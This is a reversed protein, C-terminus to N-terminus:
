YKSIKKGKFRGKKLNAKHFWIKQGECKTYQNYVCNTFTQDFVFVTLKKSIRVSLTINGVQLFGVM